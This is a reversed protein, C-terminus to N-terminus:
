YDGSDCAIGNNNKDPYHSYEPHRGRTYPGGYGQKVAEQCSPFLPDATARPSLTAAPETAGPTVPTLATSGPTTAQGTPTTPAPSATGGSGLLMAALSEAQEKTFGAIVLSDGSMRERVVPAAVVSLRHVVALRGEGAALEDILDAMKDQNESSFAFRLAYAGGKAPVAQIRQVSSVTIGPDLFYCWRRDLDLAAPENPCPAPKTDRVPAFHVSEALRVPPKGGFLPSDPNRTMVVAVTGLVGATVIVILLSAILVITTFRSARPQEVVAPPENEM